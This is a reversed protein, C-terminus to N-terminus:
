FCRPLSYMFKLIQTYREVRFCGVCSLIFLRSTIVCLYPTWLFSGLKWLCSPYFTWPSFLIIQDDRCHQPDFPFLVTTITLFTSANSCFLSAVSPVQLTAWFLADDWYSAQSIFDSLHGLRDSPSHYMAVVKFWPYNININRLLHCITHM